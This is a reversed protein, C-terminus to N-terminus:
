SCWPSIWALRGNPFFPAAASPASGSGIPSTTTFGRSSGVATTPSSTTHDHLMHRAHSSAHGTIISYTSLIASMRRWRTCSSDRKGSSSVRTKLAISTCDFGQPM